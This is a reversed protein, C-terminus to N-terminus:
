RSTSTAFSTLSAPAPHPSSAFNILWSAGHIQVYAGTASVNWPPPANPDAVPAATQGALGLAPLAEKGANRVVTRAYGNMIGAFPTGTNYRSLAMLLATQQEARTDGGGYAARLIAAGGALSACPDLADQVSMGLASLNGSNIQMLGIDVSDGRVLWRRAKVVAIDLNEGQVKRGTTDDQLALSDLGSETRAVAELMAAPVSPACRSALTMFDSHTLPAALAAIPTFCLRTVVLTALFLFTMPRPRIHRFWLFIYHVHSHNCGPGSIVRRAAQYEKIRSADNEECLALARACDPM